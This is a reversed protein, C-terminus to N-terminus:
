NEPFDRGRGSAYHSLVCSHPVDVTHPSLSLIWPTYFARETDKERESVGGCVGGCVCVSRTVAHKFSNAQIFEGLLTSNDQASM